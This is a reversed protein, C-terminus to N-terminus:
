SNNPARVFDTNQGKSCRKALHELSHCNSRDQGYPQRFGQVGKAFSFPSPPRPTAPLTAPARSLRLRPHTLRPLSHLGMAPSVHAAGPQTKGERAGKVTALHSTAPTCIQGGSLLIWSTLLSTNRRPGARGVLVGQPLTPPPSQFFPVLEQAGHTHSAPSLM